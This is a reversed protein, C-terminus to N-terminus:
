VGDCGGVVGGVGLGDVLGEDCGVGTPEKLGDLWGDNRGVDPGVPEVPEGVVEGDFDGAGVVGSGVGKADSVGVYAGTVGAGTVGM